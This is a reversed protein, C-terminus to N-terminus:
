IMSIDRTEKIWFWSYWLCTEKAQQLSPERLVMWQWLLREGSALLRERGVAVAQAFFKEGSALLREPGEAVALSLEHPLDPFVMQQHRLSRRDLFIHHLQEDRQSNGKAMLHM